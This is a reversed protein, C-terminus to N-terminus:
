VARALATFPGFEAETVLKGLKQYERKVARIVHAMGITTGDEAALYAALLAINRINGGALKFQRALFALDVDDALPAESPFVKRWIRLRDPEEPFPFDIAVHLRRVFADDLNKRLNTALIVVGDYEEMKQLLYGVEINAYRDHADKVESRKGFIADAEDFFLLANAERAATFVKDLNKETEGIYKSVMSALDVKYLELGLDAAIIEAAMTKGTGSPGAFLVNVGKGMALRRDFGWRELVTRRHKVQMCIERLLAVQDAPLVIDDWRYSTAVKSALTNLRGSSQARCAALLEERTPPAGNGSRWRALSRAMAAADRIQGGSLRFTSALAQLDAPAPAAGGLRERWITEREGFGPAPLETRLFAARRLLGRAEWPREIALFCTGELGDLAGLLAARWHGKAEDHLVVDAGILLLAAGRLAAERAIRCAAEAPALTEAAVLRPLDITVLPVGAEACLAAAVARRGSGYGGQLALVLGQPHAAWAQRLRDALGATLVLAGLGHAPREATAFPALQPDMAPQGLLEATVREDLKIFRALRPTHRQGDEVLEVLRHRLLPADADFTARARLRGSPDPVLLRLALDVAPRKRTVDDQIYAYLREFRLDLEPALGLLLVDAEFPGLGFLRALRRLPIDHGAEEAAAWAAELAVREAALDARREVLAPPLAPDPACLLEAEADPIYLGRYEDDALAGFTQRTVAVQWALLRRMWALADALAAAPAPLALPAPERLPASTM